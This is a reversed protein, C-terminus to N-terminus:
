SPYHLDSKPLIIKAFLKTSIYRKNGILNAYKFKVAM